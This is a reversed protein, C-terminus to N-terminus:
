RKKIKKYGKECKPTIEGPRPCNKEEPKKEIKRPPHINNFKYQLNVKNLKASSELNQKV